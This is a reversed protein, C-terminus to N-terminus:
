TYSHNCTGSLIPVNKWLHACGSECVSEIEVEKGYVGERKREKETKRVHVREKVRARACVCVCVRERVCACNVYVSPIHTAVPAPYSRCMRGYIRACVRM